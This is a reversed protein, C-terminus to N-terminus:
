LPHFEEENEIKEWVMALIALHFYKTLKSRLVVLLSVVVSQFMLWRNPPQKKTLSVLNKHKPIIKKTNQVIEGKKPPPPPKTGGKGCSTLVLTFVGLIIIYLFVLKNM